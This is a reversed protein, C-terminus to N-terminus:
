VKRTLHAGTFYQFTCNVETTGEKRPFDRFREKWKHIGSRAKGTQWQEGFISPAFM